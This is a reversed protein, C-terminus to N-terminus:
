FKPSSKHLNLYFNVINNEVSLHFYNNVNIYMGKTFVM